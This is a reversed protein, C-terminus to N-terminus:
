IEVNREREFDYIAVIATEDVIIELISAVADLCRDDRTNPISWTDKTRFKCM